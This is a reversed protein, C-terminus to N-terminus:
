IVESCDLVLFARGDGLPQVGHIELTKETSETASPSYPRWTIRMSPTVDARYRLTVTYSLMSGISAAQLREGVRLPLVQAALRTLRATSDTVLDIWSTSFGGQGDATKSRKLVTVRDRLESATM